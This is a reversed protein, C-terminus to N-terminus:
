ARPALNSLAATVTVTVYIGKQSLREDCIHGNCSSCPQAAWRRERRRRLRWQGRRRGWMKALKCVRSRVMRSAQGELKQIM